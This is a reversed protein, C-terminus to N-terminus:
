LPICNSWLQFLKFFFCSCSLFYCCLLYFQSFFSISHFFLLTFVVASSHAGKFFLFFHSSFFHFLLELFSESFSQSQRLSVQKVFLSETLAKRTKASKNKLSCLRANLHLRCTDPSRKALLCWKRTEPSFLRTSSIMQLTMVVVLVPDFKEQTRLFHKM